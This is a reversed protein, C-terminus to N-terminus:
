YAQPATSQENRLIGVILSVTMAARLGKGSVDRVAVLLAGDPAVRSWYFDGGTEQAPEYVFRTELHPSAEDKGPLLLQQVMRAAEFESALRVNEDRDRLLRRLLVLTLAFGFTTTSILHWVLAVQTWGFDNPMLPRIGLLGIGGWSSTHTYLVWLVGVVLAFDQRRGWLHIVLAIMVLAGILWFPLSRM